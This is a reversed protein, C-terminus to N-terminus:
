VFDLIFFENRKLISNRLKTLFPKSSITENENRHRNYNWLAGVRCHSLVRKLIRSGFDNFTIEETCHVYFTEFLTNSFAQVIAFNM